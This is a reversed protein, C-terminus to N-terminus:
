CTSKEKAKRISETINNPEIKEVEPRIIDRQKELKCDKKGQHLYGKTTKHQNINMKPTEQQLSEIERRRNILALLLVETKKDM